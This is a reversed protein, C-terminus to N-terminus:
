PAAGGLILSFGDAAAFVALRVIASDSSLVTSHFVFGTVEAVITKGGRGPYGGNAQSQGRDLRALTANTATLAPLRFREEIEPLHDKLWEALLEPEEELPRDSERSYEVKGSLLLRVLTWSFRAISSHTPAFWMIPLRRDWNVVVWLEASRYTVDGAGM